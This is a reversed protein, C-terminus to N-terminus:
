LTERAEDSTAHALRRLQEDSMSRMAESLDVAAHITAKTENPVLRKLMAVFLAPNKKGLKVLYAVGGLDRYAHLMDEAMGRTVKNRSGRRRGPNGKKFRTGPGRPKKQRQNGTTQALSM